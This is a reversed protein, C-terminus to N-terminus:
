RAVVQSGYRQQAAQKSTGLAAGIEAWEAGQSRAESILEGRWAGAKREVEVLLRLRDLARLNDATAIEAVRAIVHVRMALLQASGAVERVHGHHAILAADEWADVDVLATGPKLVPGTIEEGRWGCGCVARLGKVAPNPEATVAPLTFWAVGDPNPVEAGDVGVLVAFGEHEYNPDERTWHVGM